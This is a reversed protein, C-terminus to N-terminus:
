SSPYKDSSSDKKAIESLCAYSCSHCNGSCGSYTGNRHSLISRRIRLVLVLLLCFAVPILALYDVLHLDGMNDRGKLRNAKVLLM